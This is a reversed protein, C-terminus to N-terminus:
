VHGSCIKDLDFAPPQQPESALIRSFEHRFEPWDRLGTIADLYEGRRLFVLAPWSGFRFSAQLEREISQDIVAGKLQGPFTKLLEPLIVAMDHSELFLDPDNSFFLVVDDNGHVFGHYNDADLLPLGHRSQLQALPPRPMM